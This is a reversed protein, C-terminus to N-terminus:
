GDEVGVIEGDKDDKASILAVLYNAYPKNKDDTVIILKKVQKEFM